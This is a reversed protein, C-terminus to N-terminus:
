KKFHEHRAARMIRELEGETKAMQLALIVKPGYYLDKAAAIAHHQYKAFGSYMDKEEITRRDVVKSM